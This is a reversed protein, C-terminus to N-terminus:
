RPPQGKTLLAYFFGDSCASPLIQGDDLGPLPLLEAEPHRTLFARVQGGNEEPFVSCTAYLLKGDAALVPWLADLLEAQARAFEATDARRRLWRVDPHRRVVGSASCPADLLIRDFTRGGSFSEPERCDGVVIKAALGLRSLNEAIRRARVGDSDVALLECQALELLHGTKGGPAACADLVRMGDRVDLLPAARQAGADQVSVEGAAFGPLREVRCPKELLVAEEGLARAPIGAGDLKELYASAPLRRRNVRLVMPPHRNSELLAAEWGHPYAVRLADIWWQPHRYRGAETAEIEPLLQHMRRQFSRLVANVLGKARSHGLLVAAEVAQHVVAHAAQPRAALEAFAALLLGRLPSDALPRELLRDLAMDVLGYGRLANYCLDQAAPVLAQSPARYKLDGLATNLSEGDLVRGIVEAAAAFAQALSPSASVASLSM